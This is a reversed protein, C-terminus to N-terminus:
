PLYGRSAPGEQAQVAIAAAKRDISEIAAVSLAAIKVFRQRRDDALDRYGVMAYLQREIFSMWDASNHEDDHEPGGWQDDQRAREARINDAIYDALAYFQDRSIHQQPPIKM